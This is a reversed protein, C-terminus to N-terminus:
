VDQRRRQVMRLTVLEYWAMLACATIGTAGDRWGSLKVYRRYFERWPQLALQRPTAPAGAARRRSAELLAYAHQKARFEAVSDYNLHLLPADLYGPPGHLIPVEHVARAPDYTARGIRLLRLQHDPWWGGGRMTHGWFVNRRAIWYGAHDVDSSADRVARALEPPVREDADVFLCWPTHVLTLAHQRQRSYNVFVHSSIRAGASRAIALTGDRSGSDLVVMEDVWSLSALCAGLHREEDLTLVVATVGAPADTMGTVRVRV